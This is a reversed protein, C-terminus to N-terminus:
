FRSWLLSFRCDHKLSLIIKKSINRIQKSKTTFLQVFNISSTLLPVILTNCLLDFELFNSIYYVQNLSLNLIGQKVRNGEPKTVHYLRGTLRCGSNKNQFCPDTQSGSFFWTWFIPQLFCPAFFLTMTIWFFFLCGPRKEKQIVIGRNKAGQKKCGM